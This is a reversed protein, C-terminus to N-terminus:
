SNGQLHPVDSVNGSAVPNTFARTPRIDLNRDLGTSAPLRLTAPVDCALNLEVGLRLSRRRANLPVSLGRWDVFAVDCLDIMLRQPNSALAHRVASGLEPAHPHTLDGHVALVTHRGVTRQM